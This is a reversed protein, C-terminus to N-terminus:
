NEMDSLYLKLNSLIRENDNSGVINEAASQAVEPALNVTVELFDTVYDIDFPKLPSLVELRTLKSTRKEASLQQVVQETSIRNPRIPTPHVSRNM